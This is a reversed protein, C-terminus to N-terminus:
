DYTKADKDDKLQKKEKAERRRAKNKEIDFYSDGDVKTCDILPVLHSSGSDKMDAYNVGDIHSETEEEQPNIEDYIGKLSSVDTSVRNGENFQCIIGILNWENSRLIAEEEKIWATIEDESMVGNVLTTAKSNATEYVSTSITLLKEARLLLYGLLAVNRGGSYSDLKQEQAEINRENKIMIQEETLTHDEKTIDKSVGKKDAKSISVDKERLIKRLKLNFLYKGEEAEDISLKKVRVEEVNVNASMNKPLYDNKISNEEEQIVIEKKM